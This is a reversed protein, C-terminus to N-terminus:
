WHLFRCAVNISSVVWYRGCQLAQKTAALGVTNASTICVSISKKEQGPTLAVRLFSVLVYAFTEARVVARCCYWGGSSRNKHWSASVNVLIANVDIPMMGVFVLRRIM